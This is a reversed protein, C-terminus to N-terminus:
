AYHVWAENLHGRRWATDPIVNREKSGELYKIEKQQDSQSVNHFLESMSFICLIQLWRGAESM